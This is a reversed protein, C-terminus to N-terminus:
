QPNILDDPYFENKIGLNIKACESHAWFTQVTQNEEVFWLNSVEIQVARVDEEGITKNCYWCSFETM